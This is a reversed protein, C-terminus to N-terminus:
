WREEESEDDDDGNLKSVDHGIMEFGGKIRVRTHVSCVWM